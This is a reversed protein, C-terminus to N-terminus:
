NKWEELFENIDESPIAMGYLFNRFINESGGLNIGVIELNENLLASGSSGINIYASHRLINHELGENGKGFPVPSKSLIKGYTIKNREEGMPNSISFIKDNYKPNSDSVSIANLKTDSVFSLIALDYKEDYYEVKALPFQSYYDTIGMFQNGSNMYEAITQDKYELVILSDNREPYFAHYATLIYYKDNDRKFIVGSFGSSYGISNEEQFQRMIYVNASLVGDTIKSQLEPYITNKNAIPKLIMYLLMTLGLILIIVYKRNNKNLM